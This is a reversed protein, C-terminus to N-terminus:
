ASDLCVLLRVHCLSYGIGGLGLPGQRTQELRMLMRHEKATRAHGRRTSNRIKAAHIAEIMLLEVIRGLRHERMREKHGMLRVEVIKIALLHNREVCLGIARMGLEGLQLCRALEIGHHRLVDVTKVLYRARLVDKLQMARHMAVNALAAALGVIGRPDHRTPVLVRLAHGYTGQAAALNFGIDNKVLLREVVVHDVTRHFGDGM